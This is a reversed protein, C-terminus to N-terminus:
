CITRLRPKETAPMALFRASASRIAPSVFGFNVEGVVPQPVICADFDYLGNPLLHVGVDDIDGRMRILHCRGAIAVSSRTIAFGNM